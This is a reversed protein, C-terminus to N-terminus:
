VCFHVGRRPDENQQEVEKCYRSKSILKEADKGGWFVPFVKLRLGTFGQSDEVFTVLEGTYKTPIIKPPRHTKNTAPIFKRCTKVLTESTHNQSAVAFLSPHAEFFSIINYTM